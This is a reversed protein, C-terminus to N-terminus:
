NDQDNEDELQAFFAERSQSPLLQLFKTLKSCYEDLAIPVTTQLSYHDSHEHLIVLGEPLVLGEHLTYIRPSGKFSRLIEHMKPTSPRLSMGNPGSFANGVAPMYLGNVLKLDFSSRELKMQTDYDRLTVPLKPQIRLLTVPAM